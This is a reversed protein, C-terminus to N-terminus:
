ERPLAFELDVLLRRTHVTVDDRREDFGSLRATVWRTPRAAIWVRHGRARTHFWWDDSNFAGPLAEREIRQYVYGLEARAGTALDGVSTRVRVGRGDQDVELNRVAHVAASWPLRGMRLRAVLQGEIIRFEHAYRAGTGTGIVQNQRGLGQSALDDLGSYSMVGLVAEGGHAAGPRVAYAVQGALLADRDGPRARRVAAAAVRAEDFAGVARRAVVTVGVPRLDSDWTLDSTALPLPRKGVTITLSPFPVVLAALRDVAVSDGWENDFTVAQPDDAAQWMGWYVGGELALVPRPAWVLGARLFGRARELDETAGPRDRVRDYRLRLDGYPSAHLRTLWSGAPTFYEPPPEAEQARASTAAALIALLAALAVGAVLKM